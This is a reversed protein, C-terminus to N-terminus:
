KSIKVRKDTSGSAPTGIPALPVTQQVATVATSAMGSPPTGPQSVRTTNGVNETTKSPIRRESVAGIISSNGTSGEFQSGLKASSRQKRAAQEKAQWSYHCGVLSYFLCFCPFWFSKLVQFCLFIFAYINGAFRSKSDRMEGSLVRRRVCNSVSSSALNFM